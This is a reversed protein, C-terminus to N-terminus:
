DIRIASIKASDVVNTFQIIIQGSANATTNFVKDDAKFNSGIDQMIDFNTLVAVGNISVNFIRQGVASYYIEAFKLTVTHSSNAVLGNITYTSNGYRESKYLTQDSTGAIANGTTYTSGGSYSNDALWNNSTSDTYNPGGSNILAFPTNNVASGIISPVVVRVKRSLQGNAANIEVATEGVYPLGKLTTKDTDYTTVSVYADANTSPNYLILQQQRSTNLDWVVSNNTVASLQAHTSFYSTNGIDTCPASDYNGNPDFECLYAYVSGGNGVDNFVIQVRGYGCGATTAVSGCFDYKVKTNDFTTNKPVKVQVVPSTTSSYIPQVPFSVSNALQTPFTICNPYGTPCIPVQRKISFIAEEAISSAGFLSGESKLLDNSSRVEIFTITALSFSIALISSLVLIALLLTVGAQQKINKNRKSTQFIM